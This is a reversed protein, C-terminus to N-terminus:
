DFIGGFAENNSFINKWGGPFKILAEEETEKYIYNIRELNTINLKNIITIYANLKEPNKQINKFKLKLSEITENGEVFLFPAVLLFQKNFAESDKLSDTDEKQADKYVKLIYRFIRASINLTPILFEIPEELGAVPISFSRGNFCDLLKQNLPKFVLTSALLSVTVPEQFTQSMTMYSIPKDHLYFERLKLFFFLREGDNIQGTSVQRQTESDIIVFCTKVLEEIANIIAPKDAENITSFNAIELSTPCRYAFSWSDPYLSGKFPLESRSLLKHGDIIKPNIDHGDRTSENEILEDDNEEKEVSINEEEKFQTVGRAQNELEELEELNAKSKSNKAM